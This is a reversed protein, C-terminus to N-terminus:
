SMFSLRAANQSCSVSCPGRPGARAAEQRGLHERASAPRLLHRSAGGGDEEALRLTIRGRLPVPDQHGRAVHLTM